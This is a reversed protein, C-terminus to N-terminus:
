GNLVSLMCGLYLAFETTEATFLVTWATTGHRLAWFVQRLVSQHEHLVRSVLRDLFSYTLIFSTHTTTVSTGIDDLAGGDSNDVFRKMTEPLDMEYVALRKM